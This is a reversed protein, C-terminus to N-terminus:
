EGAGATQWQAYVTTKTAPMKYDDIQDGETAADFWGNCTYDTINSKATPLTIQEGYGYKYTITFSSVKINVYNYGSRHDTAGLYTTLTHKNNLKEDKQAFNMIEKGSSDKIIFSYSSTKAQWDFILSYNQATQVSYSVSSRETGHIWLQIQGNTIEINFGNTDKNENDWSGFPMFIGSSGSPSFTETIKFDKTWDVCVGTDVYQKYGNSDKDTTFERNVGFDLTLENILWTKVEKDKYKEALDEPYIMKESKTDFIIYRKEAGLFYFVNNANNPTVEIDIGNAKLEALATEETIEDGYAQMSALITNAMNVRQIDASTNAKDVISSFTPILVAALIAIVAIM